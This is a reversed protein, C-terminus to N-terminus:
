HRQFQYFMTTARLSVAMEIPENDLYALSAKISLGLKSALIEFDKPTCLHINPTNYWEYPIHESVPMRGMFLSVVHRWYGFNPFSVIGQRAVRIMELLIGDINRMAQLTQSLIVIDFQQDGFMKLGADLDSQIINVGRDIAGVIAEHQIEVGYGRCGRQTQLYHLLSGDSCGLDLVNAGHPVWNALVQLDHRLAM